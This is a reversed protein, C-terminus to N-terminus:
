FPSALPEPGPELAEVEQVEVDLAEGQPQEAKLQRRLQEWGHEQEAEPLQRVESCAQAIQGLFGQLDFRQGQPQEVPALRKARRSGAESLRHGAQISAGLAAAVERADTEPNASAERLWCLARSTAERLAQGGEREWELAEAELQHRRVLPDHAHAQIIRQLHRRTYGALSATAGMTLGGSICGSAWRALDLGQLQALEPIAAQGSRPRGTPAQRDKGM